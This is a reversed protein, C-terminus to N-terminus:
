KVECGPLKWSIIELFSEMDAGTTMDDNRVSDKMMDAIGHLEYPPQITRDSQCVTIHLLIHPVHSIRPTLTIFIYFCAKGNKKVVQALNIWRSGIQNTPPPPPSGFRAM